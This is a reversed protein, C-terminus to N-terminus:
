MAKAPTKPLLKTPSWWFAKKASNLAGVNYEYSVGSRLGGIDVERWAGGTNGPVSLAFKCEKKMCGKEWYYVHYWQAESSGQWSAKGSWYSAGFAPAAAFTSLALVTSATLSFKTLKNM